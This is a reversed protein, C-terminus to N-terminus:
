YSVSSYQTADTLSVFAGGGTTEVRLAGLPTLMPTHYPLRVGQLGRSDTSQAEQTGNRQDTIDQDNM